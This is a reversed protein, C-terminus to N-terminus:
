LEKVFTKERERYGRRAYMDEVGPAIGVITMMSLRWAGAEKAWSELADMLATGVGNNRCGPDVFWWMETATLKSNDWFTPFVIGGCIGVVQRKDDIAIFATTNDDDIVWEVHQVTSESDFPEGAIKAFIRALRIFHPMDDHVAEQIEIM